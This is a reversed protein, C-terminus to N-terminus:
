QDIKTAWISNRYRSKLQMRAELAKDNKDLKPWTKALYYLAEAHPEAQTDFLLDTHLFALVASLDDGTQLYYLGQTNYANAFLAEEDPNENQIIKQVVQFAQDAKNQILLAKARLCQATAKLKAAADDNASANIVADFSKEAGPGDGALLQTQGRYYNGKLEFEPQNSDALKAFEAEALQNNNVAVFLQGLLETAPYFHHSNPFKQVFAHMASGADRTTVNGSNLASQAAGWAKLFEIEQAFM